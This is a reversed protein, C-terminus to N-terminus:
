AFISVCKQIKCCWCLVKPFLFFTCKWPTVSVWKRRDPTLFREKWTTTSQQVGFEEPCKDFRLHIHTVDKHKSHRKLPTGCAAARSQRFLFVWLSSWWVAAAVAKFLCFCTCTTKNPGCSFNHSSWSHSEEITWTLVHQRRHDPLHTPNTGRQNGSKVESSALPFCFGSNHVLNLYTCLNARNKCNKM